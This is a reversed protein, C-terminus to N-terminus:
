VNWPMICTLDTLWMLSASGAMRGFTFLITRLSRGTVDQTVIKDDKSPQSGERCYRRVYDRVSDGGRASGSLTIPAGQRSLGTLFYIDEVTLPISKGRIQFDQSTPDWAELLYHLLNIQQRM